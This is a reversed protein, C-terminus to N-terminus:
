AEGPRKTVHARRHPLVGALLAAAGVVLGPRAPLLYRPEAYVVAHFALLSLWPMWIPWVPWPGEPHRFTLLLACGLVVISLANIAVHVTWYAVPGEWPGVKFTESSLSNVRAVHISLARVAAMKLRLLPNRLFDKLIWDYELSSAPVGERQARRQLSTVTEDWTIYDASDPRTTPGWFRWDWTETRYQYSGLFMVHALYSDQPALGTRGPLQAMAMRTAGLALVVVLVCRGLLVAARDGRRALVIAAAVMLPLMLVGNPRSLILVTTGLSLAMANSWSSKDAPAQDNARFWAAIMLVTGLYAPNEANIGFAYYINFPNLLTIVVALVGATTGGLRSASRRLLLLSVGMWLATWLLGARWYDDDPSGHRIFVYPIAYYVVPAPARTLGIDMWSTEGRIATSLAKAELHFDMDGFPKPRFGANAM